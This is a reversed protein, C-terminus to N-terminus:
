KRADRFFYSPPVGYLTALIALEEGSPAYKGTEWRSLTGEPKDLQIAAQRQTMNAAKRAARLSDMDYMWM